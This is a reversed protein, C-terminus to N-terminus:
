QKSKIGNEIELLKRKMDLGLAYGTLKGNSGIVRHCPIIIPIPNKSNAQGVARVAKPNGIKEAIDKYSAVEGYPITLLAEWVKKQFDTGQPVVKIDFNTREGCLYEIIQNIEKEFFTKEESWTQDVLQNMNENEVNIFLATLGNNDGVIIM